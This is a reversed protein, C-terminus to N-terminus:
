NEFADAIMKTDMFVQVSIIKENELTFAQVWDAAYSKGTPKVEAEDHGIVVVMNESSFFTKPVFSKMTLNEHQISFMKMVEDIGSFTGSFPIFPAGARTWTINKDLVSLVAPINGAGYDSYMQQIIQQNNNHM